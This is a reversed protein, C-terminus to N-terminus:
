GFLLFSQNLVTALSRRRSKPQGLIGSRLFKLRLLSPLDARSLEKVVLQLEKCTTGVCCTGCWSRTNALFLRNAVRWLVTLFNTWDLFIGSSNVSVAFLLVWYMIELPCVFGGWRLGHSAEALWDSLLLIMLSIDHLVSRHSSGGAMLSRHMGHYVLEVIGTDRIRARWSLGKGQLLWRWRAM